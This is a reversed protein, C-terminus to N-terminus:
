SRATPGTNLAKRQSLPGPFRSWRWGGLEGVRVRPRDPDGIGVWGETVEASAPDMGFCEIVRDPTVQRAFILAGALPRDEAALWDWEGSVQVDQDAM